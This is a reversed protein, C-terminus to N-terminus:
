AGADCVIGADFDTRETSTQILDAGPVWRYIDPVGDVLIPVTEINLKNLTLTVALLSGVADGDPNVHSALVVSRVRLFVSAVDRIVDATM